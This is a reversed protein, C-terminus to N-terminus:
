PLKLIGNTMSKAKQDHRNLYLELKDRIFHFLNVYTSEEEEEGGVWGEGQSQLVQSPAEPEDWPAPFIVGINCNRKTINIKAFKKGEM